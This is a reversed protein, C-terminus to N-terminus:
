FHFHALKSMPRTTVCPGMVDNHARTSCSYAFGQVKGSKMRVKIHPQPKLAIMIKDYCCRNEVDAPFSNDDVGCLVVLLQPPSPGLIEDVPFRTENSCYQLWGCNDRTWPGLASHAKFVCHLAVFLLMLRKNVQIDCQAAPARCLRKQKSDHKKQCTVFPSSCRLFSIFTEGHICFTNLTAPEM